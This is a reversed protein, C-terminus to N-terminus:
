YRGTVVIHPAVPRPLFIGHIRPMTAPSSAFALYLILHILM